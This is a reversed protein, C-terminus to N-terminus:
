DFLNPSLFHYAVEALTLAFCTGNWNRFPLLLFSIWVNEFLWILNLSLSPNFKEIWINFFLSVNAKAYAIQSSVRGPFPYQKNQGLINQHDTFHFDLLILIIFFDSGFIFTVIQYFTQINDFSGNRISTETWFLCYGM